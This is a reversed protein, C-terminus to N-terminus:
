KIFKSGLIALLGLILIVLYNELLFDFMGLVLGILILTFGINKLYYKM